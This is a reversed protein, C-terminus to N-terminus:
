LLPYDCSATYERKKKQSSANGPKQLVVKRNKNREQKARLFVKGNRSLRRAYLDDARVGTAGVRAAFHFRNGGLERQGGGGCGGFSRFRRNIPSPREENEDSTSVGAVL